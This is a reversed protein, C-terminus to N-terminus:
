QKVLYPRPLSDSTMSIEHYFSDGVCFKDLFFLIKEVNEKEQASLTSHKREGKAQTASDQCNPKSTINHVVDGDSEKVTLGLLEVGFSSYFWLAAEARSIFTHVLEWQIKWHHLIIKSSKTQKRCFKPKM